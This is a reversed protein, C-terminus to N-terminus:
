DDDASDHWGETVFHWTPLLEDLTAIDQSNLLENIAETMPLDFKSWIASYLVRADTSLKIEGECSARRVADALREALATVKSDNMPQPFALKKTRRVCIWLIRNFLGNYIDSERMLCKLEFQTIHTLLNIHPNTAKLKNNKTMPALDGGDWVRRLTASLTNGERKCQNLVNGFEEEAVLLRKDDVGDWAPNGTKANVEESEDRVQYILGEASSLGGDAIVLKKPPLVAYPNDDYLIAETERIIRVVPKFSTGKRARSSAGVLTVFLRSYHRSEGIHLYKDTLNVPQTLCLLYFISIKKRNKKKNKM